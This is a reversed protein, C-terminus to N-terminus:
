LTCESVVFRRLHWPHSSFNLPVNSTGYGTKGSFKMSIWKYTKSYYALVFLCPWPDRGFNLTKNSTGKKIKVIFKMLIWEYTKSYYALLCVFLGSM